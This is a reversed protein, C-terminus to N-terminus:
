HLPQVAYIIAKSGRKNGFKFVPELEMTELKIKLEKYKDKEIVILYDYNQYADVETALQIEAAPQNSNFYYKITKDTTLVTSNEPLNSSAWIAADKIYLKSNSRTISDVLSVFFLIGVIVLLPKNKAIWGQELTACVRPLILFLLSIVTLVAYRKSIFYETFIFGLLIIINLALFYGILSRYYQSPFPVKKWLGYLYISIYSLTLAKFLKYVLMAILGSVLILASYRESYRNLIHTEILETNLKFKTFVNDPDIYKTVSGIKSFVSAFSSQDIAIFMTILLGALFLYFFQFFQKFAIRTPQIAFLYLPLGLLIVVGDIRFLVAIIM